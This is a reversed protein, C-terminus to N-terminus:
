FNNWMESILSIQLNDITAITCASSKCSQAETIETTKLLSHGKNFLKQMNEIRKQGHVDLNTVYLLM